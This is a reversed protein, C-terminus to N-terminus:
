KTFLEEVEHFVSWVKPAHPKIAEVHDEDLRRWTERVYIFVSERSQVTWGMVAKAKGGWNVVEDAFDDPYRLQVRRSIDEPEVEGGEYIEPFIPDWTGESYDSALYNAGHCLWFIYDKMPLLKDLQSKPQPRLHPPIYKPRTKARVKAKEARKQAAKQANRAKVKKNKAM